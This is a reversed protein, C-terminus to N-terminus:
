TDKLHMGFNSKFDEERQERMGVKEKWDGREEEWQKETAPPRRETSQNTKSAAAWIRLIGAHSEIDHEIFISWHMANPLVTIEKGDLKFPLTRGSYFSTCLALSAELQASEPFRLSTIYAEIHLFKCVQMSTIYNLRSATQGSAFGYLIPSPPKGGDTRKSSNEDFHSFEPTFSWLEPRKLACKVIDM